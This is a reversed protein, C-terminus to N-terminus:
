GIKSLECNYGAILLCILTVILIEIRIDGFSYVTYFGVLWSAVSAIVLIIWTTNYKLYFKFAKFVPLLLLAFIACFGVIGMETLFKLYGSEPHDFYIIENDVLWYQDPNHISVFNAYNGLGIGFFPYNMFINFADQWIAYRFDYSENLTARNFIPFKDQFYFVVIYLGACAIISAVRYRSNSFLLIILLGVCWGGFGARGGTFLMAVLILFLIVYNKLPLGPATKDKILFLFSGAALFQAYKQPDQFFSTYRITEGLVNPNVSKSISFDVGFILQGTLFLLSVVLTIKLCSIVPYIFEVDSLCEDILIRIFVFVSLLQIFAATTDRSVSEANAVGVIAAVIMLLFFFFFIGEIKLKAHKPKYFFLFFSFTIFDFSDLSVLQPFLDFALLPYALLIYKIYVRNKDAKTFLM